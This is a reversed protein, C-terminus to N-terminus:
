RIAIVFNMFYLFFSLLMLKGKDKKKNDFVVLM